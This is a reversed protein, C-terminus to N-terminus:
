KLIAGFKSAVIKKDARGGSQELVFAILKGMDKKTPNSISNIAQDVFINYEEDSLPAPLREELIALEAQEKQVLDTRGGKTFAEISDKQKNVMKRIISIGLEQDIVTEAKGPQKKYKLFEDKISRLVTTRVTEGNRISTKLDEALQTEMNMTQKLNTRRSPSSGGHREVIAELVMTDATGGCACISHLKSCEINNDIM